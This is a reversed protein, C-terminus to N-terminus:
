TLVEDTSGRVLDDITVGLASAIDAITTLSAGEKGREIGCILPQSRGTEDALRAQSWGLKKRAAQIRTGM